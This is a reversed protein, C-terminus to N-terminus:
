QIACPIINLIKSYGIISYLRFYIYIVSDNQQGGSVLLINYIM